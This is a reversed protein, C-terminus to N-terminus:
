LIHYVLAIWTTNEVYINQREANCVYRYKYVYNNDIFKIFLKM